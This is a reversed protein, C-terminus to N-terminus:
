RCSIPEGYKVVGLIAENEGFPRGAPINQTIVLWNSDVIQSRGAGTCDYSRSFFVGADQISDQADQLNLGVVNPMLAAVKTTTTPAAKTTTTTSPAVTTTPAITTSPSTTSTSLTTATTSTSSDVSLSSSGEPKPTNAGALLTLGGFILGVAVIISTAIVKTKQTWSRNIWILAIGIPWCCLCAVIVLAIHEYWQPQSQPSGPAASPSGAPPPPNNSGVGSSSSDTM